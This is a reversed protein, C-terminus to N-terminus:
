PTTSSFNVNIENGDVVVGTLVYPTAFTYGSKLAKVSYTGPVVGSFTFTGGTVTSASNTNKIGNNLYLIVGSIPTIGDSKTVKGKVTYKTPVYVTENASTAQAGDPDAVKHTIYRTGATTYTCTVVTNAAVPAALPSRVGGSGCGVTVDLDAQNTTELDTSSDAITVVWGAVSVTRSPTPPTNIATVSVTKAGSMTTSAGDHMTVVASYSGATAYTHSTVATGVTVATASDGFLWDYTCSGSSCATTVTFIAEKSAGPATTFNATRAITNHFNEALVAIQGPTFTIEPGSTHCNSCVASTTEQVGDHHTTHCSTCTPYRPDAANLQHNPAAHCAGCNSTGGGATHMNAAAGALQAKTYAPIGTKATGDGGHCQGRQADADVWAEGNVDENVESAPTLYSASRM